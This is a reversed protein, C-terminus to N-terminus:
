AQKGLILCCNTGGFGFSNTMVNALPRDIRQRLVNAALAPDKENYNLCEPMFNNDIAICSFLVETIGAAGLTHGTWAKTSSCPVQDGFVSIVARDESLDNSRTGTGHLNIYDIDSASMDAVQLANQMATAAGHGEPHPTSMHYADSSEGYSKLVIGTDTPLGWELLAFGAAEGINIGSRNNDWPRCQNSSVLELSNFGYLTTQCLSDVGGVVAADILGSAMYRYASAFVKASSSCATSIVLAPGRLALKNRVFDTVSFVNQTYQYRYSDPMCEDDPALQAYAIETEEIGSTSTGLFVGIRTAGYKDAAKRVQDSFGDQQLALDALRNNRCDYQQWLSEIQHTSLGEVEGVWTDLAIGCLDSKRLGSQASELKDRSADLGRGLANTLTCSTIFLPTDKMM